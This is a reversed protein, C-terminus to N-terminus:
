LDSWQTKDVNENFCSKLVATYCLGIYLKDESQMQEGKGYEFSYNPCYEEIDHIFRRIIDEAIIECINNAEDIQDYNNKERYDQVVIFSFERNKFIKKEKEHWLDYGEVVLAPFKVENRFGIYFEDRWGRFYHKESESHKIKKHNVALQEM